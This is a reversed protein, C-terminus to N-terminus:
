LVKYYAIWKRIFDISQDFHADNLYWRGWQHSCHIQVGLVWIERIPVFAKTALMENDSLQRQENYGRLFSNWNRTRKAKSQRSWDGSEGRAGLFVAIDYARWGYGFCDFDFLTMDGDNDFHVNGEHLDGHCIGYEPRTKPLLSEIAESLERGINNLYDLDGKRHELFPEIFDLPEGVLHQLDIHLRNHAKEMGDSVVHIRGVLQGFSRCQKNNMPLLKGEAEAFLVSFRLGEPANILQVYRGDASKVPASVALDQERLYNLLDIEAEIDQQTRWNCHYVRLFYNGTATRVVYTDNMGTRFFYCQIPSELLYESLVRQLLAQSSLVSSQSPFVESFGQEPM